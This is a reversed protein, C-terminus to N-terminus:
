RCIGNVLAPAPSSAALAIDLHVAAPALVCVSAVRSASDPTADPPIVVDRLTPIADGPWRVVAASTDPPSVVISTLDLDLGAGDAKVLAEKRCWYRAFRRWQEAHPTLRDGLVEHREQDSLTVACLGPLEGARAARASSADEVDLGVRYGAASVIMAVGVVDGSHTISFDLGSDPMAPRGHSGGCTRCRCVLEVDQPQRHTAAGLMTRALARGTVFRARAAPVRLRAYRERESPDLWSRTFADDRAPSWALTCTLSALKGQSSDVHQFSTLRKGANAVDPSRTAVPM